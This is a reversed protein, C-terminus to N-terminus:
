GEIEHLHATIQERLVGEAESNFTDLQFSDVAVPGPETSFATVRKVNVGCSALASTVVALSGEVDRFVM